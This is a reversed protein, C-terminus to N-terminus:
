EDKYEIDGDDEPLICGEAFEPSCAAEFPIVFEENNKAGSSAIQKNPKKNAKKKDM